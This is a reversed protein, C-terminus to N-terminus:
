VRTVLKMEDEYIIIGSRGNILVHYRSVGGARRLGLLATIIGIDGRGIPGIGVRRFDRTTEVLDGKKM